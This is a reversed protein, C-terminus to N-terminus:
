ISFYNLSLHLTLLALQAVALPACQPDPFLSTPPHAASLFLHLVPLLLKLVEVYESGFPLIQRMEPSDYKETVSLKLQTVQTRGGSLPSIHETTLDHSAGSLCISTSKFSIRKILGM